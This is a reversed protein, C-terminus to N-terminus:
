LPHYIFVYKLKLTCDAKDKYRKHRKKKKRKGRQDNCLENAVSRKWVDLKLLWIVLCIHTFRAATHQGSQHNHSNRAIEAIGDPQKLFDCSSQPSMVPQVDPIRAIM